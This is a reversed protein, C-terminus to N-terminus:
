RKTLHSIRHFLDQPIINIRIVGLPDVVKVNVSVCGPYEGRNALVNLSNCLNDIQLSHCILELM